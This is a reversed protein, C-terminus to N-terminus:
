ATKNNLKLSVVVGVVLLVISIIVPTWDATSVAMDVGMFSFSDSAQMAKIGFFITGIAGAVMLVIGLIKM